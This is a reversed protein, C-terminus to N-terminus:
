GRAVAKVSRHGRGPHHVLAPTIALVRHAIWVDTGHVWAPDVMTVGLVVAPPLTLMAYFRWGEPSGTLLHMLAIMASTSFVVPFWPYLQIWSIAQHFGHPDIGHGILAMAGVLVAYPVMGCYLWPFVEPGGDMGTM